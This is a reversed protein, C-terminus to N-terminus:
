HFNKHPNFSFMHSLVRYLNPLYYAKLLYHQKKRHQNNVAVIYM